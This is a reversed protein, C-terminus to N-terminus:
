LELKKRRKLEKRTFEKTIIDENIAGAYHKKADLQLIGESTLFYPNIYEIKRGNDTSAENSKKFSEQTKFYISLRLQYEERKDYRSTKGLVTNPYVIDGLKVRIKNQKFGEYKALTGDEHEIIIKNRESSYSYVMSTDTKHENVVQVVVGKRVARVTLTSDSIFLLARYNKPLEKDFYKHNVDSLDRCELNLGEKYPLLYTFLRDVKPNTAGLSYKYRYSFKISSKSDIPALTFLSGNIGNIVYNLKPAFANNIENVDISVTYSGPLNKVYKCTLSKDDNRSLKLEIPKAQSSVTLSALVAIIVLLKIKM